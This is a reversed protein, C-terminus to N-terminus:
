QYPSLPVILVLCNVGRHDKVYVYNGSFHIKYNEVDDSYLVPCNPVEGPLYKFVEDLIKKQYDPLGLDEQCPDNFGQVSFGYRASETILHYKM